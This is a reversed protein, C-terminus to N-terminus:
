QRQKMMEDEDADGDQMKRVRKKKADTQCVDTDHLIRLLPRFVLGM